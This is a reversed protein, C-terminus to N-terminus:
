RITQTDQRSWQRKSGHFRLRPPLKVQYGADKVLQVIEERVDLRNMEVVMRAFWWKDWKEPPFLWNGTPLTEKVYQQFRPWDVHEECKKTKIDCYWPIRPIKDRNNFMWLLCAKKRKDSYFFFDPACLPPRGSRLSAYVIDAFMLQWRSHKEESHLMCSTLLCLSTMGFGPIFTM